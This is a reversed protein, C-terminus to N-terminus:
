TRLIDAVGPSFDLLVHTQRGNSGGLIAAISDEPRM